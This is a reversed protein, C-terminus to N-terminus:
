IRCSRNVSICRGLRNAQHGVQAIRDHWPGGVRRATEHRVWERAMGSEHQKDTGDPRGVRTCGDQAQGRCAEGRRTTGGGSHRRCSTVCTVVTSVVVSAIHAITNVAFHHACCCSSITWRVCHCCSRHPHHWTSPVVMGVAWAVLPSSLSTVHRVCHRCWRCAQPTAVHAVNIAVGAKSPM